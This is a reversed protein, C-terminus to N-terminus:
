RAVKRLVEEAQASKGQALLWRPSEPLIFWALFLAIFPVSTALAM